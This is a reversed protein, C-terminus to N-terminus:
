VEIWCQEAQKLKMELKTVVKRYHLCSEYYTERLVCVHNNDFINGESTDHEKLIDCQVSMNNM